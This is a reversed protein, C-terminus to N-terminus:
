MIDNQKNKRLIGNEDVCYHAKIVNENTQFSEVFSKKTTNIKRLLEKRETIFPIQENIIEMLEKKVHQTHTNMKSLTIESLNRKQNSESKLEMEGYLENIMLSTSEGVYDILSILRSLMNHTVYIVRTM